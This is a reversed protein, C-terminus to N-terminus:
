EAYILLEPWSCLEFDSKKKVESSSYWSSIIIGPKADTPFYIKSDSVLICKKSKILSAELAKLFLASLTKGKMNHFEDSCMFEPIRNKVCFDNVKEIPHRSILFIRFKRSLLRQITESFFHMQKPTSKKLLDDLCFVILPYKSPILKAKKAITIAVQDAMPTLDALKKSKNKIEGIFVEKVRLGHSMADILLGIDIGYRNEIRIGLIFDKITCFQGSLPQDFNVGPFFMKLLPKATLLTVRGMSRNFSSKVFDAEDLVVPRIIKTIMSPNWNPVDADLFCVCEFSAHKIGTKIAAGKGKNKEHSIVVAGARKASEATNDTSGDDVVIVEDVYMAKKAARVASEITAGENLAPIIVSCKKRKVELSIGNVLRNVVSEIKTFFGM